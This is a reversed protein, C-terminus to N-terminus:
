KEKKQDWVGGSCFLLRHEARAKGARVGSVGYGSLGKVRIKIKKRTLPVVIELRSIPLGMVV